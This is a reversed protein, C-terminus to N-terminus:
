VPPIGLAVAVEASTLGVIHFVKDRSKEGAQLRVQSRRVGLVKALLAMCATNAAGQVPPATVRLRLQDGYVGELQEASARPQVRVRILVGSTTARIAGM